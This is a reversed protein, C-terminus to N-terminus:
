VDAVGEIVWMGLDGMGSAWLRVPGESFLALGPPDPALRIAHGAESGRLLDTIGV